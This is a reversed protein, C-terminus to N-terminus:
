LESSSLPRTLDSRDGYGWINENEFKYDESGVLESELSMVQPSKDSKACSGRSGRFAKYLKKM